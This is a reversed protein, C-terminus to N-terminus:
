NYTQYYQNAGPTGGSSPMLSPNLIVTYGQSDTVSSGEESFRCTITVEGTGNIVTVRGNFVDALKPNSSSWGCRQTVDVKAGNDYTAMAQIASSEGSAIITPGLPTLVLSTPKRVSSGVVDVSAQAIRTKGDVFYNGYLSIIGSRAPYFLNGSVRGDATYGPNFSAKATLDDVKGDPCTGLLTLTVASGLTVASSPKVMLTLNSYLCSGSTRVSVSPAISTVAPKTPSTPKLTAKPEPLVEEAADQTSSSADLTEDFTSSAVPLSLYGEAELMVFLGAINKDLGERSLEPLGETSAVVGELDRVLGLLRLRDDGGAQGPSQEWIGLIRAQRETAMSRMDLLRNRLSLLWARPGDDKSGPAVLLMSRIESLIRGHDGQLALRELTACIRVGPACGADGGELALAARRLTYATALRKAEQTSALRLHWDESTRVLWEPAPVRRNKLRQELEARFATDFEEDLRKNGNVWSDEEILDSVGSTNGQGDFFAGKGEKIWTSSGGAAPRAEIVSETVALRTEAAEKALGFATGRVTAVVTDTRAEFSAEPGYLKLLRSWARGSVVHLRISAKTVDSADFPLAEVTIESGAALRTVGLDGWRIEALGDADTRLADGPQIETGGETPRWDASGGRKFEVGPSRVEVRIAPVGEAAAAGLSWFWAAVAFFVAGAAIGFFIKLKTSM